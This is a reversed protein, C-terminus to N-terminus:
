KGEPYWAIALGTRYHHAPHDLHESLVFDVKPTISIRFQSKLQGLTNFASHIACKGIRAKWGVTAVSILKDDIQFNVGFGWYKGIEKRVRLCAVPAEDKSLALAVMGTEWKHHLMTAFAIPGELRKVFQLALANFSTGFTMSLDIMNFRKRDLPQCQLQFNAFKTKLQAFFTPIIRQNAIKVMKVRMKVPKVPKFTAAGIYSRGAIMQLKLDPSQYLYSLQFVQTPFPMVYKPQGNPGPLTLIETPQFAIDVGLTSAGYKVEQQM